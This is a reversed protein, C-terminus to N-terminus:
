QPSAGCVLSPHLPRPPERCLQPPLSAPQAPTQANALHTHAELAGSCSIDPAAPPWAKHPRVRAVGPGGSGPSRTRLPRPRPDSRFRSCRGGRQAPLSAPRGPALAWASPAASALHEIGRATGVAPDLGTISRKRISIPMGARRWGWSLGLPGPLAGCAHQPGPAALPDGRRPRARARPPSRDGTTGAQPLSSPQLRPAAPAVSRASLCHPQRCLTHPLPVTGWPRCRCPWLSCPTSAVAQAAPLVSVRCPMHQQSRVRSSTEAEAMLHSPPHQKSPSGVEM